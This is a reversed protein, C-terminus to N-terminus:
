PYPSPLTFIPTRGGGHFQTKLFFAEEAREEWSIWVTQGVENQENQSVGELSHLIEHNESSYIFCYNKLLNLCNIWSEIM